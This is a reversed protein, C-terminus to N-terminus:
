DTRNRIVSMITAACIPSVSNGIMRHSHWKTDSFKFWDPFGQIRAAERVTIVRSEDPHIPRAAQYSGRDKGTGARLVPGPRDWRLRSYRSVRDQKGPQVSAFRERVSASHLTLSNGTVHSRVRYECADLKGLARTPAQRLMRAYSSLDDNSRYPLPINDGIAQPEPLDAIADRVTMVSSNARERFDVDTLPDVSVPDFGVVFLRRRSTAAGCDAADLEFPPLIVFKADIRGLAEEFLARYADDALHPVNEMVFFKPDIASVLECFRVVLRNREDTVNRKGITSIGQCPPGGVVGAVRANKLSNALADWQTDALDAYVLRSTPFNREYSSTIDIDVDIGCAVQFGAMYSGLSLGGAGCFLDVIGATMNRGLVDAFNLM